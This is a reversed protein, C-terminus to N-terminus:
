NYTSNDRYVDGSTRYKNPGGLFLGDWVGFRLLYSQIDLTYSRYTLTMKGWTGM